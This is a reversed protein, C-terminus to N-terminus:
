PIFSTANLNARNGFWPGQWMDSFFSQHNFAWNWPIVVLINNSGATLVSHNQNNFTKEVTLCLFCPCLKREKQIFM